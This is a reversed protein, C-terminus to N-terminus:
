GRSKFGITIKHDTLTIQGRDPDIVKLDFHKSLQDYLNKSCEGTVFFLTNLKGNKSKIFYMFADFYENFEYLSKTNWGSLEIVVNGTYENKFRLCHKSEWLFRDIERFRENQDVYSFAFEFYEKLTSKLYSVAKEYERQIIIM